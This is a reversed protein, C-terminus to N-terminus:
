KFTDPVLSQTVPLLIAPRVVTWSCGAKQLSAVFKDRYANEWKEKPGTNLYARGAIDAAELAKRFADLNFKHEM